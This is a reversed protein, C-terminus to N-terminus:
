INEFGEFWEMYIIRGVLIGFWRIKGMLSIGGRFDGM